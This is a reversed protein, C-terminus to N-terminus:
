PPDFDPSANPLRARYITSWGDTAGGKCIQVSMRKGGREVVLGARERGRYYDSFVTYTSGNSDFRLFEAGGATGGTVGYSFTARPATDQTPYSLEIKGRVGSIFRLSGKDEGLDPSACLAIIKSSRTACAFVAEEGAACLHPRSLGFGPGAWLGAVLLLPLGIPCNRM